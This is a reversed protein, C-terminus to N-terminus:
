PHCNARTLRYQHAREAGYGPELLRVDFSQDSTLAGARPAVGGFRHLMVCVYRAQGCDLSVKAPYSQHRAVGIVYQGPHIDCYFGGGAALRHVPVGNITIYDDVHAGYSRVPRFVYLRAMGAPIAGEDQAATGGSRSELTSSVDAAACRAPLMAGGLINPLAFVALYGVAYLRIPWRM